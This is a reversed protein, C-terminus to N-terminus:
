TRRPDGEGSSTQSFSCGRGGTRPRRHGSWSGGSRRLVQLGRARWGGSNPSPAQSSGGGEPTVSCPGSAGTPDEAARKPARVGKMLDVAV